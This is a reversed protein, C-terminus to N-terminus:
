RFREMSIAILHWASALLFGAEAADFKCITAHGFLRHFSNIYHLPVVFSSITDIVALSIVLRSGSQKRKKTFGFFYVVLINGLLGVVMVLSYAITMSLKLAIKQEIDDNEEEDDEEEEEGYYSTINYIGVSKGTRGM